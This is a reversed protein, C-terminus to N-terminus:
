RRPNLHIQTIADKARKAVDADADQTWEILFPLAEPVGLTGLSTIALLRQEKPAGPKGQLLLKEAASNPSADLGKTIRDWYAVQEHHFRIRALSEAARERVHQERDQLLHLLAPVADVAVKAGFYTAVSDRYNPWAELCRLAEPIPLVGDDMAHALAATALGAYKSRTLAVLDLPVKGRLVEYARVARDEDDGGLMAEFRARFHRVDRESLDEWIVRGPAQQLQQDWWRHLPGDMAEEAAMRQAVVRPWTFWENGVKSNGWGKESHEALALVLETPVPEARLRCAPADQDIPGEWSAITRAFALREALTFGHPPDPDDYLVYALPTRRPPKPQKTYPHEVAAHTAMDKTMQALAATDHRSLLALYLQSQAEGKAEAALTRMADHVAAHPARLGLELLAKVWSARHETAATRWGELLWAAADPNGTRSAPLAFAERADPARAAAKARLAPFLEAPLDVNVFQQLFDGQRKADVREFRAFVEAANAATIKGELMYWCPYGHDLCRLVLPAVAADLPACAGSLVAVFWQQAQSGTWTGLKGQSAELMGIWRRAREVDLHLVANPWQTATVFDGQVWRELVFEIADLDCRVWEALLLRQAALGLEPSTSALAARVVPLLRTMPPRPTLDGVRELLWRQQRVTGNGLVECLLEPTFLKTGGSSLVALSVGDDASRLYEAAVAVMETSSARVASVAVLPPLRPMSKAQRLFEAAKTGGVQWLVSALVQVATPNYSDATPVTELYAVIEPVAHEGLWVLQEPAYVGKVAEAVLGRAKERLAKARETDQPSVADGNDFAIEQGLKRIEALCAAADQDRGLRKCLRALRLWADVKADDTLGGGAIAARYLAEAKALDREQEEVAIIKVLAPAPQQAALAGACAAFTLVLPITKM